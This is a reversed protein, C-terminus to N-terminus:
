LEPNNLERANPPLFTFISKHKKSYVPYLVIERYSLRYIARDNSQRSVMTAGDTQIIRIITEIDKNTM